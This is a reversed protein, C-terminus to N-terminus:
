DSTAAPDVSRVEQGLQDPLTVAVYAAAVGTVAGIIFFIVRYDLVAVLISGVALSIAQPTAMVVEVAASVRGIIAQPSRRQLVTYFSIVLIPISIGVVVTTALLVPISRAAAVGCISAALLGLGFVTASVEGRSRVLTPTLLGGVIAGVGQATVFVSVFTPPKDFADALAFVAAESFGLVLTSLAFGTMVHRLVRDSGLHRIGATLQHWLHADERQPRPEVVPIASIVAAAVVFSLADLVAVVWGGQWTFLAAGALPGVLRYAEKTTQISSNAEVLLRDPMLEKLLGNLGAPIVVFSIGYLFAVAWIIWVDAASRVLTLPLVCVASALNAWVLMPKRRVRDLLVGMAPALIAPIVMFFFTLGAQTNSGTLTKVWMGLVLLMISDGFMSISLGTYLRGFGREGFAARM